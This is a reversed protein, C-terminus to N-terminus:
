VKIDWSVHERKLLYKPQGPIKPDFIVDEAINRAMMPQARLRLAESFASEITPMQDLEQISFCEGVSKTQAVADVENRIAERAEKHSLVFLLTWFIAPGSNGVSAWMLALNMRAINDPSTGYEDCLKQRAKMFPSATELFHKRKLETLLRDRAEFFKTTGMPAKAMVMPVGRDFDTFPALLEPNSLNKSIFPEVSARFLNSQVLDYLDYEGPELASLLEALITQAQNVTQNVSQTHLIHTRLTEDSYKIWEKNAHAQSVNTMECGMALNLFDHQLTLRDFGKQPKYIFTSCNTPDGIFHCTNGMITASFIPTKYKDTYKQIFARIGHNGMEIASGVHPILSFVKPPEVVDGDNIKSKRNSLYSVVVLTVAAVAITPLVQLALSSPDNSSM